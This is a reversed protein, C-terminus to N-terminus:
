QRFHIPIGSAPAIGLANREFHSVQEAQGVVIMREQRTRQVHNLWARAGVQFRHTGTFRRM